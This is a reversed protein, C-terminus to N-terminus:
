TGLYKIISFIMFLIASKHFSYVRPELRLVQVLGPAGVPRITHPEVVAGRPPKGGEDKRVPKVLAQKWDELSLRALM